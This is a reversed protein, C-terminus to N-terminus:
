MREIIDLKEGKKLKVIAKKWDRRKGEHRGLRKKKGKCNMTMVRDVKVAFISEVADKIEIKNASPAVEFLLKNENDNLWDGKETFLPRIIIDYKSKM